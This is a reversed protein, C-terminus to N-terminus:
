MWRGHVAECRVKAFELFLTESQKTKKAAGGNNHIVGAQEALMAIFSNNRLAELDAEDHDGHCLCMKLLMRCPWLLLCSCSM